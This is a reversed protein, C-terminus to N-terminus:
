RDTLGQREDGDRTWGGAAGAKSGKAGLAKGPAAAAAVSCSGRDAYARAEALLGEDADGLAHDFDDAVPCQPVLGDVYGGVDKANVTAFNVVSYTQGCGDDRPQFGFPKGCSTSGVQVVEVGDLGKLGNIVLESASCTRPGSLM